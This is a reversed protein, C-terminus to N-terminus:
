EKKTFEKFFEELTREYTSDNGYRGFHVLTTGDEVLINRVVFVESPKRTWTSGIEINQRM